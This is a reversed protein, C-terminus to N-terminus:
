SRLADLVEEKSVRKTKLGEDIAKGMAMDEMVEAIVDYFVDKREEIAQKIANKMINRQPTKVVAM